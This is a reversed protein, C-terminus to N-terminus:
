WLMPFSLSLQENCDIEGFDDAVFRHMVGVPQLVSGRASYDAVPYRGQLSVRDVYTM